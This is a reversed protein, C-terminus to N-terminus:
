VRGRYPSPHDRKVEGDRLADCRPCEGARALQEGDEIYCNHACECPRLGKLIADRMKRYEVDLIEGFCDLLREKARCPDCRKSNDM